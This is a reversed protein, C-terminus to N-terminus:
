KTNFNLQIKKDLLYTEIFIGSRAFFWLVKLSIKTRKTKLSLMVGPKLFYYLKGFWKILLLNKFMRYGILLFCIRSHKFVLFHSLLVFETHCSCYSSMRAHHSFDFLFICISKELFLCFSLCVNKETRPSCKWHAVENKTGSICLTM